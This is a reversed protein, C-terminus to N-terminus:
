KARVTIKRAAAGQAKPLRLRLVGASVSAEIKERDIEDSLRFSRQFDGEEYEAYSLDFGSTRVPEITASITLINKELTIDVKKENAGPVDALVIIEKETEYIDAKPAFCRRARTREMEETPANEQHQIEMTQTKNAM